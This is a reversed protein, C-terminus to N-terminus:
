EIELDTLKLHYASKETSYLIHITEDRTQIVSISQIPEICVDVIQNEWSEGIDLSIALNITTKRDEGILEEDCYTIVMYPTFIGEGNQLRIADINSSNYHIGIPEPPHWTEGYDESVSQLIHKENESQLYCIIRREGALVFTPSMMSPVIFEDIYEEDSPEIFVSPFWSKGTNDSIYAFSRGSAKDYVPLLIRGMQVFLPPNRVEWNVEEEVIESDSKWIKGYDNSFNQTLLHNMCYMMQLNGMLNLYTVQSFESSRLQFKIPKGQSHWSQLIEDFYYSKIVVEQQNHIPINCIIGGHPHEMVSINGNSGSENELPLQNKELRWKM